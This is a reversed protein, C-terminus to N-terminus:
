AVLMWAAAQSSKSIYSCPSVKFASKLPFCTELVIRLPHGGLIKNCLNMPISHLWATNILVIPSHGLAMNLAAEGMDPECRSFLLIVELPGPFSGCAWLGGWSEAGQMKACCPKAVEATVWMHGPAINVKERSTCATLTTWNLYWIFQPQMISLEKKAIVPLLNSIM